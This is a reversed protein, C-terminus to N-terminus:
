SHRAQVVEPAASGPAVPQPQADDERLRRGVRQTLWKGLPPVWSNAKGASEHLIAAHSCEAQHDISDEQRLAFGRNNRKVISENATIANELPHTQVVVHWASEISM